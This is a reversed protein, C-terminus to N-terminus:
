KKGNLMVQVYHEETVVMLNITPKLESLKQPYKITKWERLHEFLMYETNYHINFAGMSVTETAPTEVESHEQDKITSIYNSILIGYTRLHNFKAYELILFLNSSYNNLLFLTKM